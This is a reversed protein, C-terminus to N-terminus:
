RKGYSVAKELLEEYLSVPIERRFVRNFARKKVAEAICEPDRCVYAGRGDAKGTNDIRVANGGAERVVRILEGRDRGNRCAVCMRINKKNGM